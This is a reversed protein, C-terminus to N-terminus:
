FFDPKVPPQIKPLVASSILSLSSRTVKNTFPKNSSHASFILFTTFAACSAPSMLDSMGAPMIAFCMIIVISPPMMSARSSFLPFGSSSQTLERIFNVPIFFYISPTKKATSNYRINPKINFDGKACLLFPPKIHTKKLNILFLAFTVTNAHRFTWHADNFDLVSGRRRSRNFIRLSFADPAAMTDRDTRVPSEGKCFHLSFVTRWHSLFQRQTNLM